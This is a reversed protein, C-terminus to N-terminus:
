PPIRQSHSGYLRLIRHSNGKHVGSKELSTWGERFRKFREYVSKSTIAEDKYVEKLMGHTEKASKGLQFCFLMNIRQDM